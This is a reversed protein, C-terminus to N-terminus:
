FQSSLFLLKISITGVAINSRVDAERRHRSSRLETLISPARSMQPLVWYPYLYGSYNLWSIYNVDYFTRRIPNYERTTQTLVRVLSTRALSPKQCLGTIAKRRGRWKRFFFKCSAGSFLRWIQFAMQVCFIFSESQSLLRKRQRQNTIGECIFVATYAKRM